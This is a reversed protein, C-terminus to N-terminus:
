KRLCFWIVLGGLVTNGVVKGIMPFVLQWTKNTRVSEKWYFAFMGVGVLFLFVDIVSRLVIVGVIGIVLTPWSVFPLILGFIVFSLASRLATHMLTPQPGDFPGVTPSQVVGKYVFYMRAQAFAWCFCFVAILKPLWSTM